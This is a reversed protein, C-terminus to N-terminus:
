GIQAMPTHLQFRVTVTMLAQSPVGNVLTPAYVWQHVAEVAADALMPLARLVRVDKVKGDADILCELVVVGEVHASRALPPYQPDVHKLKRPERVDGGIRVLKPAPPTPVDPLGGVIGGAVGGPLGGDVGEALGGVAGRDGGADPEVRDPVSVPATFAIPTTSVPTPKSLDAAAKPPPPPPPPPPAAPEVFFARVASTSPEPPPENRLLSATVLAGILLAHAALSVPLTLSRRKLAESEELARELTEFGFEQM